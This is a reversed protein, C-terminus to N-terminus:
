KGSTWFNHIKNAIETMEISPEQEKAAEKKLVWSLPRIVHGKSTKPRRSQDGRLTSEIRSTTDEHVTDIEFNLQDKVKLKNLFINYDAHEIRAKLDYYEQM